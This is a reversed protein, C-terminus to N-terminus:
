FETLDLIAVKLLASQGSPLLVEDSANAWGDRAFLFVRVEGAALEENVNGTRAYQTLPQSTVQFFQPGADTNEVVLLCLRKAAFKNGNVADLAEMPLEVGTSSWQNEPTTITLATEAM